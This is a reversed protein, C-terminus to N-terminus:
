AKKKLEQALKNLGWMSSSITQMLGRPIFTSLFWVISAGTGKWFWRPSNTKLVASATAKAWQSAPMARKGGDSTVKEVTPFVSAYLSGPPGSGVHDNVVMTTLVPGTALNVVQVGFPAMEVRLSDGWSHLAAKSAGYASRFPMPITGAISGNNVIKGKAAIVMTGFEKVMRMAGFLNAAFLAEVESVDADLVPNTYGRGANNVLIDLKGGTLERVRAAAARVSENNAVDLALTEIGKARLDDLVELRRATAFVRLGRQHFELVLAHGISGPTCGTILVSKRTDTM